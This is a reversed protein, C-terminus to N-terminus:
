KSIDHNIVKIRLYRHIIKSIFYNVDRAYAGITLVCLSNQPVHKCVHNGEFM